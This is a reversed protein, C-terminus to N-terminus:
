KAPMQLSPRTQLYSTVSRKGHLIDEVLWCGQMTRSLMIVSHKPVPEQTPSPYFQYALMVEAHNGKTVVSTVRARPSQAGDQDDTWYNWDIPGTDRNKIQERLSAAISSALPQSLLPSSIGSFLFDQYKEYFIL